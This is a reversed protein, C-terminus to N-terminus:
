MSKPPLYICFHYQYNDLLLPAPTAGRVTYQWLGAGTQMALYTLLGALIYRNRNYLAYVSSHSQIYRVAKSHASAYRISMLVAPFLSLPM